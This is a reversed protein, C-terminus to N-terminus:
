SSVGVTRRQRPDILPYVLDVLLNVTVFGLASLVVIAQLMAADQNNVAQETLRGFGNLGFVTETVVAGALLEGFLVGAITLTPALANRLVHRWLVWSPSAGKARAVAVFPQVSVEDIARILIQAMPAAIPVALTAVPLILGEWPGAGIVPILKLRFSFVQILVVGLWFVPLSVMLSPLAAFLDRLARFPGLTAALAILFALAAAALFGFVTLYLTAPLNAAISDAVPVGRMISTGLDGSLFQTLTHLYQTWIPADAGYAIRLDAIQQPSLGFDGGEFKILIADGPLAQLLLFSLTFTAWLVLLAQAFRGILYRTM